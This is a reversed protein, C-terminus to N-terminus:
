RKARKLIQWVTEKYALINVALVIVAIAVFVTIGCFAWELYNTITFVSVIATGTLASGLFAVINVMIRKLFLCLKRRFIYKSLYVAYYAFRFGTAMLTGLAVGMLGLCNVLVVSVLVNIVAEGYAAMRTQKFHGAAIVMAHYPTRLCYVLSSLILLIAFIPEKYNADRVGATYLEVFPMILAATTAFLIIAIISIFTEYYDFTKHLQKQEDKALMEGFIAEMGSTFSATLSQMHSVVMSYVSYVAVTTLNVFITLVAVDTNSHLFYALHQGMGTWKQKLYVESDKQPKLFRFNKRVILWLTVPRLTFVCSSVLKMVILSCGRKVLFISLLTNLVTACLSVIQTTYGRQAANLLITNSIGIFYQGFTSISIVIVLLFSTLWDLCSSGSIFKFSCALVLVYAAFVYAIIRFFLQIEMMIKNITKEDKNALPKYLASRAVGSVGGELLTIYALFQAVSATAGYAESGFTNIMLQPLILGCIISVIQFALSTVINLQARKERLRSM